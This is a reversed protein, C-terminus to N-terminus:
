RELLAFTFEGARPVGDGPVFSDLSLHYVGPALEMEVLRDHRALCSEGSAAETLHVDIDVDDRDLVIARISTSADLELRYWVEPGSENAATGCAYTDVVSEGDDATSRTDVFPLSTIEFPNDITGAGVLPQSSEGLVDGDLTRRVRDLAQLAVLNRNNYGFDLDATTFSCAGGGAQNLHIGDGVLGHNSIGALRGHLDVLPIQRRQAMGRIVANYAPVWSGALSSDVRPPITFVVPVIGDDILDDLLGSMTDYFSPMASDFTAGLQMDNTGYQVLAIAPDLASVEAQVPSPAGSTAWSATRGVAAALSTRSFPDTGAADGGIFFALTDALGEHEGFGVSGAFCKLNGSGVTISDGVSMFVDSAHPAQEALDVLRAAVWPTLPSHTQGTPYRAPADPELGDDDGSDDGSDHDGADDAQGDGSDGDDFGGDGSDDGGDDGFPGLGDTEGASDVDDAKGGASASNSAPEAQDLEACGPLLVCLCLVSVDARM